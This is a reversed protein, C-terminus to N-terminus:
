TEGVQSYRQLLVLVTPLSSRIAQSQQFHQQSVTWLLQMKTSVHQIRKDTIIIRTPLRRFLRM